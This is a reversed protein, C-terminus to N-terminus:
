KGADDWRREARKQKWVATRFELDTLNIDSRYKMMDDVCMMEAKCFITLAERLAAEEPTILNVQKSAALGVRETNFPQIKPKPEVVATPEAKPQAKRIAKKPAPKDCQCPTAGCFMCYELQERAM